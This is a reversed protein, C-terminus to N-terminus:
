FLLNSNACLQEKPRFLYVKELFIVLDSVTKFLHYDADTIPVHFEQEVEFLFDMLALSDFLSSLKTERYIPEDVCVKRFVFLLREWIM